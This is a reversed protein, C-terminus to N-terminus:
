SGEVEWGMGSVRPQRLASPKCESCKMQISPSMWHFGHIKFHSVVLDTSSKKKAENKVMETLYSFNGFNLPIKIKKGRSPNGGALM